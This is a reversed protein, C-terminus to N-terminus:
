HPEGGWTDSLSICVQQEIETIGEIEHYALLNRTGWIIADGKAKGLGLDERHSLAVKKVGRFGM